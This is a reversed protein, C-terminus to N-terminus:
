IKIDILTKLMKAATEVVRANAAFSYRAMMLQVVEQGLDVNPTAIMGHSDAYPAKPDYLPIYGPSVTSVTAMTGGGSLDIQDVRLPTYARETNASAQAGPLAGNTSANAINCASVQLRRMAANMGSVAISLANNM